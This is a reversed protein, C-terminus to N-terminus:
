SELICHSRSRYRHLARVAPLLSWCVLTLFGTKRAQESRSLGFWSDLNLTSAIEEFLLVWTWFSGFCFVLFFRFDVGILFTLFGNTLSLSHGQGATDSSPEAGVVGLAIWKIGDSRAM